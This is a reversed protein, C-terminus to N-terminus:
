RRSFCCLHVIFKELAFDPKLRGTKIDSDCDLLLKLRRKKEIPSMANREWSYRLGGLIREPREGNELLQNLISLSFNCKKLEVARGLSFTDVRTEEKFRLVQCYGSINKLFGDKSNYSNIDLVLIISPRPKKFYQYLFEKADEKLDQAGKVVVLRIKSKFPLCLLREQLTKLNLDKAHLIDLNFQELEKPFNSERLAKIRAEKSLSDQGIFLFVNKVM